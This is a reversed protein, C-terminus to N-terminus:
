FAKCEVDPFKGLYQRELDSLRIDESNGCDKESSSTAPYCRNDAMLLHSTHTDIHKIGTKNGPPLSYEVASFPNRISAPSEPGFTRNDDGVALSPPSFRDWISVGERTQDRTDEEDVMFQLNGTAIGHNALRRLRNLVIFEVKLKLAYMLPHMTARLTYYNLYDLIIITLDVSFIFTQTLILLILVNRLEKSQGPWKKVQRYLSATTYTYISSLCFEQLSFGIIMVREAIYMVPDWVRAPAVTLAFACVIVPTHFLIADVIICALIVRHIKSGKLVLGIRSYLVMAFGTSNAVWSIKVLFTVGLASTGPVFLKLIFAITHGAVGWATIFIAWFYLTRRRFTFWLQINIEIAIYFSITFFSTILCFMTPNWPLLGFGTFGWNWQDLPVYPLLEVM